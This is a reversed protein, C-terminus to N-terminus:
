VADIKSNHWSFSQLAMALQFIGVYSIGYVYSICKGNALWFGAM